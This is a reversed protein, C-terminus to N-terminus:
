YIGRSKKLNQVFTKAQALDSLTDVECSNICYAKLPLDKALQIYVDGSRRKFYDKPAYLINAWEFSSIHDRSFSLVNNESDLQVFVSDQTKADTIGILHEGQRCQELFGAFSQPDFIIDADIYLVADQIGHAGMAYSDMTKTAHFNPNRVFIIDSRIKYVVDMIQNECFGVVIRIDEIGELIQLLYSIIPKGCIEVLCKPKGMGLRSSLGAAAIVVHKVSSM